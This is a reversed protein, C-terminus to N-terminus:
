EGKNLLEEIKLKAKPYVKKIEPIGWILGIAAGILIPHAGIFVIISNAIGKM